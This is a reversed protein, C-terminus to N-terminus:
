CMVKNASKSRQKMVQKIKVLVKYNLSSLTAVTYQWIDATPGLKYYHIKIEMLLLSLVDWQQLVKQVAKLPMQKFPNQVLCHLVHERSIKLSLHMNLALQDVTPAPYLPTAPRV